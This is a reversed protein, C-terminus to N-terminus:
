KKKTKLMKKIPTFSLINNTRPTCLRTWKFMICTKWFEYLEDNKEVTKKETLFVSVIPLVTYNKFNDEQFTARKQIKQDIKWGLIKKSLLHWKGFQLNPSYKTVNLLPNLAATTSLPRLSATNRWEWIQTSPCCLREPLRTGLNYIVNAHAHLFGM